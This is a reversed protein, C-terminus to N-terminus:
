KEHRRIQESCSFFISSIITRIPYNGILLTVYVKEILLTAYVSNQNYCRHIIM